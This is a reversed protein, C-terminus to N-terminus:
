PDSRLPLDVVNKEGTKVERSLGSTASNNYTAPILSPPMTDTSDKPAKRAHVSIKHHGVLAGKVGATTVEFHGQDDSAAVGTPGKTGKKADPTFQIIARALPSGDLTVTGSVEATPPLDPKYGCGIAVLGWGLVAARWASRRLDRM